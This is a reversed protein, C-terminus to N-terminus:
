SYQEKLEIVFMAGDDTNNAYLRGGMNSEIIVKAMYLGVGTGKNEDKTTVYPQFIKDMLDAKIGMGNDKIAVRIIGENKATEIIIEGKEKMLGKEAKELVADRSNNLLNLIVHKFENPYGMVMIDEQDGYRRTLAISTYFLKASILNLVEEIAAKLEFLVREKSPKLFDRFDDMTKLMFDIQMNGKEVVFDIEKKDLAGLKCQYEMNQIIFSLTSLPSKWQHAIFGLMEGMSALKAQQVLLQQQEMRQNVEEKVRNELDKNLAELQLTKEQLAKQTRVERLTLIVGTLLLLLAIVRIQLALTGIDGRAKELEDDHMKVHMLAERNIARIDTLLHKQSAPEGASIDSLFDNVRLLLDEIHRRYSADWGQSLKVLNETASKMQLVAAEEPPRGKELNIKMNTTADAFSKISHITPAYFGTVKKSFDAVQAVLLIILAAIGAFLLLTIIISPRKLGSFINM